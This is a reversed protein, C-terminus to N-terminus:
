YSAQGERGGFTEALALLSAAREHWESDPALEPCTVDVEWLVSDPARDPHWVASLQDIASAAAAFTHASPEDTFLYSLQTTLTHPEALEDDAGIAFRLRKNLEGLEVAVRGRSAGDPALGQQTLRRTLSAMWDDDAEGRLLLVYTMLALTQVAVGDRHSIRVEPGDVQADM